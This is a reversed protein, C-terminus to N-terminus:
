FKFNLTFFFFSVAVRTILNHSLDLKELGDSRTWTVMHKFQNNSLDLHKLRHCSHFPSVSTNSKVDILNNKLQNNKFKTVQLHTFSNFAKIHINALGNNEFTLEKLNKLGALTRRFYIIADFVVTFLM